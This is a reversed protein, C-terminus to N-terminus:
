HTLWGGLPRRNSEPRVWFSRKQERQKWVWVIRVGTMSAMVLVDVGILAGEGVEGWDCWDVWEHLFVGDVGSCGNWVMGGKWVM